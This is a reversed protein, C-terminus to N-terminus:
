TPSSARATPENHSEHRVGPYTRRVVGPLGALPESAETPVLRDSEGHYVLTPVSLRALARRVRAQERLAAAGFAATTSHQNLPDALYREGITPDRSLLAGDFDNELAVTPAVSGLL